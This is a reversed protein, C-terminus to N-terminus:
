TQEQLIGLPNESPGRWRSKCESRVMNVPQLTSFLHNQFVLSPSVSSLTSFQQKTDGPMTAVFFCLVTRPVPENCLSVKMLKGQGVGSGGDQPSNGKFIKPTTALPSAEPTDQAM